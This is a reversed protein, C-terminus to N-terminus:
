FGVMGAGWRNAVDRNPDGSPDFPAASTDVEGVTDDLAVRPPLKQYPNAPAGDVVDGDEGPEDGGHGEGAWEARDAETVPFEAPVPARFGEHDHKWGDRQEM